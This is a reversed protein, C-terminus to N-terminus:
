AGNASPLHKEIRGQGVGDASNWSHSSAVVALMRDTLPDIAFADDGLETSGDVSLGHDTLAFTLSIPAGASASILTSGLEDVAVRVEEISEIDFAGLSAVGSAVLRLVRLMRPDAPLVLQLTADTPSASRDPQSM